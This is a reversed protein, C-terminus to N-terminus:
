ADKKKLPTFRAGDRLTANLPAGAVRKTRQPREQLVKVSVKHPREKPPVQLAEADGDNVILAVAREIRGSLTRFNKLQFRLRALVTTKIDPNLDGARGALEEALQTFISLKSQAAKEVKQYQTFIRGNFEAATENRNRDIRRTNRYRGSPAKTRQPSKKTDM